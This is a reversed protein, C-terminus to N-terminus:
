FLFLRSTQVQLYRSTTCCNSTCLMAVWQSVSRLGFWQAFHALTLPLDLPPPALLTIAGESEWVLFVFVSKYLFRLFIHGLFEVLFNIKIIFMNASLDREFSYTLFPIHLRYFFIILRVFRSLTSPWSIQSNNRLSAISSPMPVSGRGPTSLDWGCIKVWM